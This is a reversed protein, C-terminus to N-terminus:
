FGVERVLVAAAQRLYPLALSEWRAHVTLKGRWSQQARDGMQQTAPDLALTVHYIAREPVLQGNKERTLLHGGLHAALEARPLVRSADQDVATVRLSLVDGHAADSQFIALDGAGIRRVADEDFWTEVQWTSGDRVLLAVKEKRQLWQGVHLDPDMDRLRGAFPAVPTYHLLETNLSALEAQATSLAEENVLLRNRAEVEFGSAAAQWRLREVKSSLTQKRLQLDPTHLQLLVSGAPVQAGEAFPLADVRAGAPAYVPWVEAPRLIASSVVRGPFPVFALGLLLLVVLASVRSRRTARIARWRLRWAQWERHIPLLVFWLIEVVFLGVGALKFFFHYVLLAIGIFLVLRYIWTAWAFVVMGLVAHRGLHEPPDEGLAFLFERLKWRALAFSREHLNPMDLWDSLIFYGDFRMFPSANIALTAVWSLTALVFAASRLAGDPLVAWALTAWAAIILETAIGASAVQLRQLRNTLRWTENTDTYAVPWMVLFAVGMTPVRCGLRKATFAHGLEHLLKVVFLAVGYAALGEWSFTDVLSASFADWRRVVQSLGLLLAGATLWAFLRTYFLEALPRWRTLWADPRLLPVRFFLYHHLLWKWLSGEIQTLRDAMQRASKPGSPQTLQNGQLFKVVGEVDEPELHLTTEESIDYAMAVPDDLTWRQLVEFTPWDIRFFLNRVPDHLTWSPQGDTLTPGAMLALEERLLPLAM